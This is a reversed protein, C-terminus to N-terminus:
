EQSDLRGLVDVAVGGVQCGEAVTGRAQTVPERAGEVDSALHVIRGGDEGVAAVEVSLDFGVLLKGGEGAGGLAIQNLQLKPDIALNRPRGDTVQDM